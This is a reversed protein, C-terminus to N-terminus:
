QPQQHFRRERLHFFNLKGFFLNSHNYKYINLGLGDKLMKMVHKSEEKRLLGNDIFVCKSRDGIAKHLLTAVISSDVGGSLGTIVKGNDGIKEKISSITESIFNAATWDKKCDAINFLFNSIIINGQDTHVVEPHFQVAYMSKNKHQIAAIVNNQLSVLM